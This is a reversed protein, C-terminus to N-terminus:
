SHEVHFMKSHTNLTKFKAVRQDRYNILWKHSEWGKEKIAIAYDIAVRM